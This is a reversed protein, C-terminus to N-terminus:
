SGMLSQIFQQYEPRMSLYFMIGGAILFWLFFGWWFSSARSVNQEEKVITFLKQQVIVEDLVIEEDNDLGSLNNVMKSKDFLMAEDPLVDDGVKTLNLRKQVYEEAKAVVSQDVTFSKKGKLEDRLFQRVIEDYQRLEPRSQYIQGVFQQLAFNEM